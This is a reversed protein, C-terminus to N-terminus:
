ETEGWRASVHHCAPLLKEMLPELYAAVRADNEILAVPDWYERVPGLPVDDLEYGVEVLTVLDADDFDFKSLSARLDMVRRCGEALGIAGAAMGAAVAAIERRAARMAETM